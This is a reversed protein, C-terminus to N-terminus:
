TKWQTKTKILKFLDIGLALFTKYVTDFHINEHSGSELRSICSHRSDDGFIKESLQKQSLKKNKRCAKIISGIEKSTKM